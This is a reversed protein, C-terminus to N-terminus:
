IGVMFIVILKYKIEFFKVEIGFFKILEEYVIKIIYEKKSVGVFFEEEFM